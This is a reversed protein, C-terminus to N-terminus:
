SAGEAFQETMTKLLLRDVLRPVRQRLANAFRIRSQGWAAVAPAPSPESAATTTAYAESKRYTNSNAYHEPYDDGNYYGYGYSDGNTYCDAYILCNGYCEADALSVAETRV